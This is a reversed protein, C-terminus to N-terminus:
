GKCISRLADLHGRDVQEITSLLAAAADNTEEVAMASFSILDDLNDSHSEVQSLRELAAIRDKDLNEFQKCLQSLKQAIPNTGPCKFALFVDLIRRLVNPMMYAYDYKDGTEEFRLLHQFLYHYESDYERLLPPLTILKLSRAASGQPMSVDLFLLAASPEKDTDKQKPRAKSKWEKRFENLCNQNHTLLIVQAAESLRSKILGCAYNLSRSDLSSIPDDIVAIIDKTKRGESELLSLFYCLAIATKEGESPLGTLLKGNRHIEYGKDIAAISLESHGLYSKLLRNIATAATGIEQIQVELESIRADLTALALGATENSKTAEKVELLREHYEEAFSQLYHRRIALQAKAQQDAFGKM